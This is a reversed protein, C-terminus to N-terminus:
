QDFHTKLKKIQKFGCTVRDTMRLLIKTDVYQTYIELNDHWSSKSLEEYNSFAFNVIFSISAKV